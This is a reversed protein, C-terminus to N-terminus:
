ITLIKNEGFGIRDGKMFYGLQNSVVRINRQSNAKDKLVFDVNFHSHGFCAIKLIDGYNQQIEGRLIESCFASELKVDHNYQPSSTNEKTPAHHTLLVVRKDQQKAIELQQKIWELDKVHQESTDQPSLKRKQSSDSESFYIHKYDSLGQAVFESHEDQVRSWLTTGLFRVNTGEVDFVGQDLYTVNQVNLKNPVHNTFYDLWFQKAKFWEEHYFEHNGLIVLIHKFQPSIWKLLNDYAKVKAITSIDGLLCCIDANAELRPMREFTFPIELHIDSAIQFQFPTSTSETMKKNKQEKSFEGQFKLFDM